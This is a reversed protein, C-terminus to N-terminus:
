SPTPSDLGIEVLMEKYMDNINRKRSYMQSGYIYIQHAGNYPIVNYSPEIREGLWQVQNHTAKAPKTWGGGYDGGAHPGVNIKAGMKGTNGEKEVKRGEM